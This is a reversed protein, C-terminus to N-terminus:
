AISLLVQLTEDIVTIFRAAAQFQRQFTLLSISEEDLSVGTVAQLQASLSERVLVASDVASTAASTKVALDNVANQWFSRLSKGGLEDIPADQLAALALATGNSGAVHGAGAALLTQDDLLTQNVAMTAANEGVFFTNIGLAALAGSSDESFSMEYGADAVLQLTRDATISATVSPVPMGINIADVLDQLSAADGDIAIEHSTRLGTAVHTVNIFFSGNEIRFPLGAASANLNAAPDDVAYTGTVSTFGREGQGQSHLRNVQFILQGALEELADLAPGAGQEDRQRLLGGITGSEVDLLTGDAAVRVTVEIAGAKSELRLDVGRNEGALLIPISNVLVDTIGNDHELVTIELHRSLEDLLLDRQDRLSSEEGVGPEATAIQGNLTTIQDLLGNVTEVTTGLSRDIEARVARYDDALDAIRSAVSEGLQVVVARIADDSPNNALESFGNFFSSLLTSLDNDTLENQITELATLFRQDVLSATEEGLADRYRGQLAVDVVRRVDVIQVGRGVFASGEIEGRMPTLHVVRRHFGETAANAMNNGAVQIAAQSATLASRGIQLAGNLSM